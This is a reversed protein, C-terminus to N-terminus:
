HYISFLLSVAFSHEWTYNEFIKNGDNHSNEVVELDTKYKWESTLAEKNNNQRLDNIDAWITNYVDDDTGWEAGGYNNLKETLRNITDEMEM